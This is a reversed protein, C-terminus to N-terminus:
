ELIQESDYDEWDYCDVVEAFESLDDGAFVVTAPITYNLLFTIIIKTKELRGILIIMSLIQIM